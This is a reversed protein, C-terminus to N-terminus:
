YLYEQKNKAYTTGLHQDGEMRAGEWRWQLGVNGIAAELQVNINQEGIGVRVVISSRGILTATLKVNIGRIWTLESLFSNTITILNIFITNNLMYYM